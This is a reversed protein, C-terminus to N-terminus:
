VDELLNIKTSINEGAVSEYYQKAYSKTSSERLKTSSLIGVVSLIGFIIAIICGILIVKFFSKFIKLFSEFTKLVFSFVQEVSAITSSIEAQETEIKLRENLAEKEKLKNEQYEKNDNFSAGCIPCNDNKSIDIVAGCYVCSIKM